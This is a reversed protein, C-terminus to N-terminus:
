ATNLFCSTIFTTLLFVFRLLVAWYFSSFTCFLWSHTDLAIFGKFQNLCLEQTVGSMPNCCVGANNEPRQCLLNHQKPADLQKCQKGQTQNRAVRDQSSSRTHRQFRTVASATCCISASQQGGLIRARSGKAHCARRVTNQSLTPRPDRRGPRPPTMEM